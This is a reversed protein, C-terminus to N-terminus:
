QIEERAIERAPVGIVTAGAAVDRTVVAGAGVVANKGIHRGELVIAGAGVLVGDDVTVGGSLTSNPNILCYRGIKSDHSVVAGTNIMSGEGVRVDVTLTAMAAVAAGPSLSARPGLTAMPHILVPWSVQRGLRQMLQMRTAPAGMGLAVDVGDRCLASEEEPAVKRIEQWISHRQNIAAITAEMERAHGATGLILIRAQNM